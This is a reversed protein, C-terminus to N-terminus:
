RSHFFYVEIITYLNARYQRPDVWSCVWGKGLDVPCWAFRLVLYVMFSPCWLKWVAFYERAVTLSESSTSSHLYYSWSLPFTPLRSQYLPPSLVPPIPCIFSPLLLNLLSPQVATKLLLLPLHFPFIPLFSIFFILHQNFSLPGLKWNTPPTNSGVMMRIKEEKQLLVVHQEEEVHKLLLLIVAVGGGGGGGPHHPTSHRSSHISIDAMTNLRYWSWAGRFLGLVQSIQTIQSKLLVVGSLMDPYSGSLTRIKVTEDLQIITFYRNALLCRNQLM